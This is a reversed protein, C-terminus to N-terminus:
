SMSRLQHELDRIRQQAAALQGRLETEITYRQGSLAESIPGPQLNAALNRLAKNERQAATLASQLARLLPAIDDDCYGREATYAARMAVREVAEASTDVPESM